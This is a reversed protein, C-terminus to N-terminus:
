ILLSNIANFRSNAGETLVVYSTDILLVQGSETMHLGLQPSKDPLQMLAFIAILAIGAALGAAVALVTSGNAV